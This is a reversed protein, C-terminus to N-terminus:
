GGRRNRGRSSRVPRIALASSSEAASRATALEPSAMRLELHNHITDGSKMTDKSKKIVWCLPTDYTESPLIGASPHCPGSDEVPTSPDPTVTTAEEATRGHSASRSASSRVARWNWGANEWPMGRTDLPTSERYRAPQRQKGNSVRTWAKFVGVQVAWLCDEAGLNQQHARMRLRGDLFRMASIRGGVGLGLATSNTTVQSNSSASTKPSRGQVPL